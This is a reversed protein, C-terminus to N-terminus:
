NICVSFDTWLKIQSKFDDLSLLRLENPLKNYLSAGNYRFSKIGYTVTHCIPQILNINRLDYPTHNRAFLGNVPLLANNLVKHVNILVNRTRDLYLSPLKTKALLEVYSSTFDHYVYRLARELLKEM